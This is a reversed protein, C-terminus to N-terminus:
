RSLISTNEDYSADISGELLVKCIYKPMLTIFTNYNVNPFLKNSINELRLRRENKLKPCSLFYQEESETTGGCSPFDVPNYRHLHSNLHSLGLRITCHNVRSLAHGNSYLKHQVLPKYLSRIRTKFINLSQHEKVDNPLKNWDRITKPFYSKSFSERHSLSVLFSSNRRLQYNNTTHPIINCLHKLYQPTM